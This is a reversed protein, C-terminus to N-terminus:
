TDFTVLGDPLDRLFEIIGPEGTGSYHFELTTRARSIVVFFLMRTVPDELRRYLNQLRTLYVTDFELGKANFFNTLVVGPVGFEIEPAPPGSRPRWAFYHQLVNPWVDARDERMELESDEEFRYRMFFASRRDPAFVGTDREDNDKNLSAQRVIREASGRDEPFRKVLIAPEHDGEEPLEPIGTQLGTYFHAALQAIRRTNRYNRTLRYEPPNGMWIRIEALTSQEEFIRQNEDAFVTLHDSIERALVYFEEPLDQGEDIVLSSM